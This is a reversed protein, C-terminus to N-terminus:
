FFLAATCLVVCGTVAVHWVAAAVSQSQRLCHALIGVFFAPAYYLAIQKFLLGSTFLVSATLTRGRAICGAAALCLGFCVGNYQFHGHDILLLPPLLWLSLVAALRSAATEQKSSFGWVACLAGPFYVALDSLVVSARM